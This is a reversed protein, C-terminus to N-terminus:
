CVFNKKEFIFFFFLFFHFLLFSLYLFFFFLLFLFFNLYIFLYCSSLRLFYFFDRQSDGTFAISSTLYRDYTNYIIKWDKEEFYNLKSLKKLTVNIYNLLADNEFNILVFLFSSKVLTCYKITILRFFSLAYNHILFNFLYTFFFYYNILISNFFYSLFSKLISIIWRLISAINFIAKKNFPIDLYEKKYFSRFNFYFFARIKQQELNLKYFLAYFNRFFFFVRSPDFFSEYQFISIPVNFQNSFIYRHTFNYFNMLIENKLNFFNDILSKSIPDFNSSGFFFFFRLRYFFFLIFFLFNFFFKNLKLEFNNLFLYIFSKFNEFFFKKFWVLFFYFFFLLFIMFAGIILFLLCFLLDVTYYVKKFFFVKFFSYFYFIKFCFNLM